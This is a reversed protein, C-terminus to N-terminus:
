NPLVWMIQEPPPPPWLFYVMVDQHWPEFDADSFGLDILNKGPIGNGFDAITAVGYGPVYVQQGVTFSYWSKAVGAVGKQLKLGSATVDNCYSPVGLQCPSYSTAYMPVARWYEITGGPLELVKKTIKTGYGVIRPEPKQAVWESDVTRTIEVGNEFRVRVQQALVGYTGTKLIQQTDIEVDAAPQFETEFPLPEQTLLVEEWVREVRIVGDVPIPQDAAPLSYDLGQLALGSEALAEGVTSLATRTRITQDGSKITVPKSPTYVAHITGSLRTEPPPELQDHANLVIGADQLAIALTPATTILTQEGQPTQLHVVAARQLELSHAQGPLLETEPTINKGDYFLKDGPYLPIKDEALINGATREATLHTRLDGDALIHIPVARNLLIHTGEGLPIEGAPNLEDGPALSIQLAALLDTSTRVWTQIEQPQGDIVLIVTKHQEVAVLALGVLVMLIAAAMLRAFRNM